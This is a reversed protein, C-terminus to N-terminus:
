QPRDPAETIYRLALVCKPSKSKLKHRCSHLMENRLTMYHRATVVLYKNFATRVPFDVFLRVLNRILCSNYFMFCSSVQYLIETAGRYFMRLIM